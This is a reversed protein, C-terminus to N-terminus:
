QLANFNSLRKANVRQKENKQRQRQQWQKINNFHEILSFVCHTCFLSAFAFLLFICVSVAFVTQQLTNKVGKTNECIDKTNFQMNVSIKYKSNVCKDHVQDLKAKTQKSKKPRQKVESAQISLKHPTQHTQINNECIILVCFWECTM